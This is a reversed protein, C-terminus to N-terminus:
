HESPSAFPCLFLKSRKELRCSKLQGPDNRSLTRCSAYNFPYTQLLALCPSACDPHGVFPNVALGDRWRMAARNRNLIFRFPRPQAARPASQREAVRM